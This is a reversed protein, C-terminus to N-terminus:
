PKPAPENETLDKTLLTNLVESLHQACQGTMVLKAVPEAPAISFEQVAVDANNSETFDPAAQYFYLVVESKDQNMAVRFQNTFVNM